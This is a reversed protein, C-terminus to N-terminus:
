GPAQRARYAAVRTRSACAADCFRRAPGPGTRLLVHACGDAECRGLVGTGHEAVLLALAMAGSAALWGGWSSEPADVHLHLPVGEHEVLRPRATRALLDNLLAALQGPHERAAFVAGLADRAWRADALDRESVEVPGPEDEALLLDRLQGATALQDRQREGPATNVLAVALRGWRAPGFRVDSGMQTVTDSM